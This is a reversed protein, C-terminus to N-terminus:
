LESENEWLGVAGTPLSNKNGAPLYQIITNKEADFQPTYAWQVGTVEGWRRLLQRKSITLRVEQEIAGPDFAEFILAKLEQELDATRPDGILNQWEGPDNKLDFLQNQHGQIHIYKYDGRRVMFCTCYVGNSHYESFVHRETTDRGDILGMVSHGDVPLHEQIDAM